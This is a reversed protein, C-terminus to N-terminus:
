GIWWEGIVKIACGIVFLVIVTILSWGIILWTVYRDEARFDDGFRALFRRETRKLQAEKYKRCKSLACFGRKYECHNCIENKMHYIM